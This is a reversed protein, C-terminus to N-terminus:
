FLDEPKFVMSYFKEKEMHTTKIFKKDHTCVTLGKKNAIELHLADKFDLRSFSLRDIFDNRLLNLRNLSTIESIEFDKRIKQYLNRAKEKSISNNIILNQLVEFRTLISTTFSYKKSLRLLVGKDKRKIRRIAESYILNANLYIPDKLEFYKM